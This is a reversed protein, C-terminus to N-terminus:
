FRSYFNSLRAYLSNQIDQVICNMVENESPPYQPRKSVSAKESESLAREDGTYSAFQTSWNYHGAVNDGWLWQGNGNRITVQLNGDAQLSRNTTTIKAKVKGYVKVVSDPKYVIEKVVVEKSVQRTTSQDYLRGLRFNNFQLDIVQDPVIQKSGAEFSSYFRTFIDGTNYQLSRLLNDEFNERADGAYASFRFGDQFDNMPLIVVNVVAYGYAEEKLLSITRDGPKYLLAKDFDYYAKRYATKDGRDMQALGREYYVDGAKEAYTVLYSSYDVPRVIEFVEPSHYIADYLNQLSLYEHYIWEYKLENSGVAYSSIRNEHDNVAYRYADQLVRILDQDGPKKQLKKAALEVAEDYNGKQYLKSASKCGFLILATFIITYFKGKM